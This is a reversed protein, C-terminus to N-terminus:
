FPIDDEVGISQAKAPRKAKAAQKPEPSAAPSFRDVAVKTQGGGQPQWQRTTAMVHRGVLDGAAVAQQWAAPTLGLAEALERLRGSSKTNATGDKNLRYFDVFVLGYRKGTDSLRISFKAEDASQRVIQYEATGDPVLEREAKAAPAAAVEATIEWWEGM